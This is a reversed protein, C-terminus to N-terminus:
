SHVSRRIETAIWARVSSPVEDGSVMRAATRSNRERMLAALARKFGIL